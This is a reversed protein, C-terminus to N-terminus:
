SAKQQEGITMRVLRLEGEIEQELANRDAESMNEAISLTHELLQAEELHANREHAHRAAGRLAQAARQWNGAAEYQVAMERAVNDERGAFLERLREAIRVHGRARRATPQRQYLVERYLGHIFAYFDSRTGDPLDDHGARQVLGTRRALEDCANEIEDLGEELAAAVAWAPFAIPMLSGAELVRQERPSLRDLELEILKGLEHPVGIEMEQFAALQEWQGDDTAGKRVLFRQAIVHELLSLVFLPNGESRQYIFGDLGPPLEEQGLRRSLLQRVAPKSLPPLALEACLQRVVLDQKLAKLPHETSRDEPRYTVLVMLKTPTRRRALASILELTPEDAWQLDELVLIVAKDQAIEELADCLDGPAHRAVSQVASGHERWTLPLWAPAVRSLIGRVREQDALGCLQGLAEVIPYYNEEKGFGEVSHGCVVSAGAPTGNVMACFTNVLSTKGIGTGGTIFVVQRQGVAVLQAHAQLRVLEQDRGVLEASTIAQPSLRSPDTVELPADADKRVLAVFRYGRKPITQIFRPSSADDGLVKRLELMYTRLVQPQVYTAPWVADLLEDHTILRGANEVLYRLVSFPKPALEIQVGQRWLCENSTDLAFSGFQNM